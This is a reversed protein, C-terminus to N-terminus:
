EIDNVGYGGLTLVRMIIEVLVLGIAGGVMVVVIITHSLPWATLTQPEDSQVLSLWSSFGVLLLFYEIWSM